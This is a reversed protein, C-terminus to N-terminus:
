QPASKLILEASKKTARNVIAFKLVETKFIKPWVGKLKESQINDYVLNDLLYDIDVMCDDIVTIKSNQCQYDLYRQKKATTCLKKLRSV